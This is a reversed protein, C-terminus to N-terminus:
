KYCSLLTVAESSIGEGRGTYGLKETTTAKINVRDIQIGMAKAINERMQDIFPRLKPKECVVTIDTNVVSYGKEIIRDTVEKLLRISSIGRYREDNDPFLKGIDGMAAAGLMSDMLAHVAVDADSHGLLGKEYPIEVGGLILKRGEQFRHVDFGTGIRYSMTLDEPTTIKINEYEGQVVVISGGMHEMIGADDTGQFGDEMAKEYAYILKGLIFGQPTQVARLRNRDLTGKELHRVTDKLPVACVSGDKEYSAKRVREIVKSTVFPRAGDHILVPLDLDTGNEKLYILANYVSDQREAGGKAIHIRGDEPLLSEALNVYEPAVVVVISEVQEDEAFPLVARELVTRGGIKMFQKPLSSKMRKGSGAAVVVASYKKGNLM